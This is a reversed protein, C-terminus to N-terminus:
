DWAPYIPQGKFVSQLAAFLAVGQKRMSSLYGRIRAFAQAGSDARFSGAITQQVKPCACTRSPRITTASSPSTTAAPRSAWCRRTSRGSASWCIAPPGTSSGARSGRRANPPRILPWDRPSCSRLAASSRTATPPTWARTGAPAPRRWPPTGRWSCRRGLRHGLRPAGARRRVDVRASITALASRRAARRLTATPGGATM